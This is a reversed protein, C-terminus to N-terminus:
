ARPYVLYHEYTKKVLWMSKPQWKNIVEIHDYDGFNLVMRLSEPTEKGRGAERSFAAMMKNVCEKMKERYPAYENMTSDEYGIIRRRIFYDLVSSLTLLVAAALVMILTYLLANGGFPEPGLVNQWIPVIQLAVLVIMVILALRGTVRAWNVAGIMVKVGPIRLPMNVIKEAAPRVRAWMDGYERFRTKKLAGFTEDM